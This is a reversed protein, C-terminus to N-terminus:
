TTGKPLSLPRGAVVFTVEHCVDAVRTNTRGLEDRFRRGAVTEPVIGMGVENTVLVVDAECAELADLLEDVAFEVSASIRDPHAWGDARDIVATLWLTLCDVLVSSQAPADRLTTALDTTEITRWHQPRRARHASVREQWERDDPRAGGTAVYAVEQADAVLSEAFHSKGSRAGGTVLHRVPRPGRSDIVTGDDVIRVGLPRLVRALEDSPPNHHSLHIAISQTTETCANIARLSEMTRALAPIDHHGTGHEVVHGFTEEIMIIDFARDSLRALTQAAFEATDTAYLLRTDDDRTIDYLLAEDAHVDGNGTGHSSALARIAYRHQATQVTFTDGAAVPHLVVPADPALWPRCAGLAAEPGWIHLTDLADIWSRWLLFEPALHDAHGHTVLIHSVQAFSIGARRAAIATNPGFDVLLADDIAVSTSARARGAAREEACSTCDCFPNPWGDASGTGLLRVRM